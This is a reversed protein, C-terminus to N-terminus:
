WSNSAQFIDIKHFILTQFHSNQSFHSKSITFKTYFSVTFKTLVHSKSFTFKRIFQPNKGWHPVEKECSCEKKTESMKWDNHGHDKFLLHIYSDVPQTLKMCFTANLNFYDATSKKKNMTWLDFYEMTWIRIKVEESRWILNRPGSTKTSDNQLQGLKPKSPVMKEKFHGLLPFPNPTTDKSDM